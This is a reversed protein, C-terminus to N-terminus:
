NAAGFELIAQHSSEGFELWNLVDSRQTDVSHLRRLHEVAIYDRINLLCWWENLQQMDRGSATQYCQAFYEAAADDQRRAFLAWAYAVDFRYDAVGTEDWDVLGCRGDERKLVNGPHADGHIWVRQEEGLQGQLKELTRCADDLCLDRGKQLLDELLQQLSYVPLDAPVASSHLRSLIDAVDAIEPKTLPWRIAEGPTWQLLLAPTGPLYEGRALVRAALVRKADSGNLAIAVLDALNRQFPPWLNFQASYTRFVCDLTLGERQLSLREAYQQFSQLVERKEIHFGSEFNRAIWCHLRQESLLYM